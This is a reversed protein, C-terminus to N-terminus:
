LGTCLNIHIITIIEVLHNERNNSNYILDFDLGYNICSSSLFNASMESSTNFLIIYIGYFAGVNTM